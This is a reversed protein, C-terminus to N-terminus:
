RVLQCPDVRCQQSLYARVGGEGEMWKSVMGIQGRFEVFGLLQLVNPHHCKSWTHLEKAVRQLHCMLYITLCNPVNM